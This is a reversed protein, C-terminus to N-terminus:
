KAGKKASEVIMEELEEQTRPLALRSGVGEGQRSMYDEATRQVLRSWGRSRQEGAVRVSSRPDPRPDSRERITAPSPAEVIPRLSGRPHLPIFTPLPTNIRSLLSTGEKGEEERSFDEVILTAEAVSPTVRLVAALSEKLEDNSAQLWRSPQAIIIEPHLTHSVQLGRLDELWGRTEQTM